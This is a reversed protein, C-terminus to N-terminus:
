EPYTTREYKYIRKGLREFGASRSGDEEATTGFVNEGAM